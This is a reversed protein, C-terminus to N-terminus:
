GFVGSKTVDIAFGGTAYEKTCSTCTVKMEYTTEAGLPADSTSVAQIVFTAQQGEELKVTKPSIIRAQVKEEPVKSTPDRTLVLTFDKIGSGLGTNYVYVKIQASKGQKVDIASPYRFPETGQSLKEIEIDAQSFTSETIKTLKGFLGRVWTLGLVLLTVGIVIVIITTISMEIAGKKNKRSIRSLKMNGRKKM